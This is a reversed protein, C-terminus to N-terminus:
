RSSPTFRTRIYRQAPRSLRGERVVLLRIRWRRLRPTRPTRQWHRRAMQSPHALTQPCARALGRGGFTSREGSGSSSVADCCGSVWRGVAQTDLATRSRGAHRRRLQWGAIGRSQVRAAPTIVSFISHVCVPCFDVVAAGAAATLTAVADVGGEVATLGHIKVM